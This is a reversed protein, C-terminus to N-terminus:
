KSVDSSQPSPSTMLKIRSRFCFDLLEEQVGRGTERSISGKQKLRKVNIGQERKQKLGM